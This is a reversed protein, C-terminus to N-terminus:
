GFPKLTFFDRVVRFAVKPFKDKKKPRERPIYHGGIYRKNIGHLKALDYLLIDRDNQKM